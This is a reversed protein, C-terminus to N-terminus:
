LRCFANTTGGCGQATATYIAGNFLNLTYPKANPPAFKEPPVIDQGTALDLTRLRGDWSVAYMGTRGNIPAPPIVPM